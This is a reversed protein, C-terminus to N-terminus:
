QLGRAREMAMVLHARCGREVLAERERLWWRARDGAAAFCGTDQYRQDAEEMREACFSVWLQLANDSMDSLRKPSLGDDQRAQQPAHHFPAAIRETQLLLSIM